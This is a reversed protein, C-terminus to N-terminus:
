ANTVPSYSLCLRIDEAGVASRLSSVEMRGRARHGEGRGNSNEPYMEEDDQGIVLVCSRGRFPSSTNSHRRIPTLRGGPGRSTLADPKKLPDQVDPDSM